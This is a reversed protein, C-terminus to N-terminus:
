VYTYTYTHTYCYIYIYIYIFLPVEFAPPKDADPARLEALPDKPELDRLFGMCHIVVLMFYVCSAGFASARGLISAGSRREDTAILEEASAPM